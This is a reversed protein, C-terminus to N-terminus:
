LIQILDDNLNIIDTEIGNYSEKSSDVSGFHTNQLSFVFSATRYPSLYVISPM